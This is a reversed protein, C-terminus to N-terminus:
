AKQSHLNLPGCSGYLTPGAPVSSHLDSLLSWPFSHFTKLLMGSSQPDVHCTRKFTLSTLQFDGM